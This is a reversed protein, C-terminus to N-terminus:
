DHGNQGPLHGFNKIKKLPPNAAANEEAHAADSLPGMVNKRCAWSPPDIIGPPVKELAASIAM